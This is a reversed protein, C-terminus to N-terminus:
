SERATQPAARELWERRLMAFILDDAWEEKFWISERLHAEQRFGERRMLAISPANRPDVSGYVRHKGLDEFLVALLARVAQGAYGHGQHAPAVTVGFEAQRPDDALVRVGCDGILEGTSHLAIGLQYWSGRVFPPSTLVHEIFGHLEAVSAPEWSQYRAVDPHSRYAFMTAADDLRLECLVAHDAGNV